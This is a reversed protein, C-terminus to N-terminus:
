ARPPKVLLVTRPTVKVVQEAVSGLLAGRVGGLGHSGLCILEAGVREAAQSIGEAADPAEIVLVEFHKGSDQLAPPALAQLRARADSAAQRSSASIEFVDAPDLPSGTNRRPLVHLATVRGGAGVVAFAQAVAANGLDSFDTAVLASRFTAPATPHATRQPVCVVNGPAGHLVGHSVSGEWLRAVASRRHSGVVVLDAKEASALAALHDSPRGIGPQLRLRASPTRLQDGLERRLTAEVDPDPDVYSRVGLLGLRHFEQPPWYVHAGLQVVAGLASLSTSWTWADTASTSADVGVLVKLPAGQELFRILPEPDRVALTPVRTQQALRDANRGVRHGRAEGEGVVGFVLLKASTSEALATLVAEPAGPSVVCRVTKCRLTAGLSELSRETAEFLRARAEPDLHRPLALAHVLHLPVNWRTAWAAAVEAARTSSPSFDIGCLVTM